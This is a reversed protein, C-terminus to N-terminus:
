EQSQEHLSDGSPGNQDPGGLGESKRQDTVLDLHTEVLMKSRLSSIFREIAANQMKAALINTIDDKVESLQCLTGKPQKDLVRVITFTSGTKIVNTTGNIKTSSIQQAVEAPIDDLKVYPLNKLDPPPVKSYQSALSLFNDPTVFSRVKWATNIDVCVIELYKAVNKERVFRTKNENYYSEIATEPVRIEKLPLANRSIMEACLLDEKMRKLRNRIAEDRDLKLRIAENYLIKNDIWQKVYNLKQERTVFDSYEPPISKYLEDLTLVDSGVRAVVPGKPRNACGALLAAVCILLLRVALITNAPKM